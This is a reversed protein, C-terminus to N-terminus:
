KRSWLGWIKEAIFSAIKRLTGKESGAEGDEVVGGAATAAEDGGTGGEIEQEGLEDKATRREATVRDEGCDAVRNQGKRQKKKKASSSKGGDRLLGDESAEIIEDIAPARGEMEQEGLEDKETRREATVRDEGCDAVRNQGKRQKKKKASSSKGGDRLLGDEYAEIIEDIAQRNPSADWRSWFSKYCRFCDCQFMPPHDEEGPFDHEGNKRGDSAVGRRGSPNPGSANENSRSILYALVERDDPSLAAALTLLAAPLLALQDAVSPPSPHVKGKKGHPKAM